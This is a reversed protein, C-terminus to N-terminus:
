NIHICPPDYATPPVPEPKSWTLSRDLKRETAQCPPGASGDTPKIHGCWKCAFWYWFAAWEHGATKKSM